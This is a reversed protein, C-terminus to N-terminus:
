EGKELFELAKRALEAGLARCQAAGVSGPRGKIVLTSGVLPWYARPGAGVM